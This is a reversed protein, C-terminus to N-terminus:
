LTLMTRLCGPLRLNHKCCSLESTPMWRVLLVCNCHLPWIHFVNSRLVNIRAHRSVTRHPRPVLNSAFHSVLYCPRPLTHRTSHIIRFRYKVKTNIMLSMDLSTCAPWGHTVLNLMTSCVTPLFPHRLLDSRRHRRAAVLVAISRIPVPM